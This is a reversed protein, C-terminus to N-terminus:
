AFHCLRIVFHLMSSNTSCAPLWQTLGGRGPPLPSIMPTQCRVENPSVQGLMASSNAGFLCLYDEGLQLQPLAKIGVSVQLSLYM